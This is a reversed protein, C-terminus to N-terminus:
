FEMNATLRWSRPEVVYVSRVRVGDAHWTTIRPDTENFVNRVNLQVRVPGKVLRPFRFGYSAFADTDGHPESYYLVQGAGIQTPAKGQYRYGGGVTLGKV